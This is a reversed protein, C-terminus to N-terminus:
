QSGVVTYVQVRENIFVQDLYSADDPSFDGLERENPGYYLYRVQYTVLLDERQPDSMRESFFESALQRKEDSHVTEPGHGVFVRVSAYAPLLNGTEYTSLVVAGQAQTALWQFADLQDRSHFIPTQRGSITAMSGALLAINTFSMTIITFSIVGMRQWNRRFKEVGWVLGFAALTALPVQYGDLFRRQLPIPFYVLLPVILVWIMLFSFGPTQRRYCQWLGLIALPLTLGFGLIYHIPAPSYTLSQDRWAKFAFNTEFVWVVYILYPVSPLVIFTWRVAQQWLRSPEQYAQWVIFAGFIASLVVLKHPHILSMLLGAGAAIGWWGWHGDQLFKLGGIVVWLLLGQALPLHPFTLASLFFSADPVWLDVPMSGLEAPFGLLLWLGGFGATLGFLLLAVRRVLVQRTFGATFIYFTVLCFPITVLRSLSLLVIPELQFLRSLHGLGLYYLFFIESQHAEPTYSLYFRWYGARGEQMKALYSNGDEIGIVFGGFQYDPTSISAGYFYSVTTLTVILLIWFSVWIWESPQIVIPLRENHLKSM